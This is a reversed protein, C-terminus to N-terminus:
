LLEDLLRQADALLREQEAEPDREGGDRHPRVFIREYAENTGEVRAKLAQVYEQMEGIPLGTVRLTGKGTVWPEKLGPPWPVGHAPAERFLWLWKDDPQPSFPLEFSVVGDATAAVAEAKGLTANG